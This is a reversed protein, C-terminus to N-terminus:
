PLFLVVVLLVLLGSRTEPRLSDLGAPASGRRRTPGTRLSGSVPIVAVWVAAVEGSRESEVAMGDPVSGGRGGAGGALGRPRGAGRAGPMGNVASAGICSTVSRANMCTM